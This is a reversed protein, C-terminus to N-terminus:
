HVSREARDRSFRGSVGVHFHIVASVVQRNPLYPWRMLVYIVCINDRVVHLFQRQQSENIIRHGAVLKVYIIHKLRHLFLHSGASCLRDAQRVEVNFLYLPHQVVALDLGIIQLHFIV